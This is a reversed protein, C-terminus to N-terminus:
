FQMKGDFTCDSIIICKIAPKLKKFIFANKDSDPLPNFHKYFKTITSIFRLTNLM